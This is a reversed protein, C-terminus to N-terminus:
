IRDSSASAWARACTEAGEAQADGGLYDEKDEVCLPAEEVARDEDIQRNPNEYYAAAIGNYDVAIRLAMRACKDEVSLRERSPHVEEECEDEDQPQAVLQRLALQAEEAVWLSPWRAQRLVSREGRQFFPALISSLQAPLSWAVSTRRTDCAM